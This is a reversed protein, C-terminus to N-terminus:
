AGQVGRQRRIGFWALAMSLLGLAWEGLTPVATPVVQVPVSATASCNGICIGGNAPQITATNVVPSPPNAGATATLTYTLTAGVPLSTITENLAGSGSANPCTGGSASCTWQMASIGAPMPDSLTGSAAVSGTNTVKVTYAVNGGPLVSSSSTTKTISMLAVPPVSASSSCSAVPDGPGCIGGNGPQVSATNVVVAPPTASVTANITYTVSAGAPMTAITDALAGTGAASGCAAGVGAQCTWNVPTIGTVAPDSVQTGNAHVSGTNTVVVTYSISAGPTLATTTTSKAISLVPASPLTVSAKCPPAYTTGASGACTAGSAAPPQVSVENTVTAPVSNAVVAQVTYVVQSGAAFSTLTDNISGTGSATCSAGASATCTWSMSAVGAPQPDSVVTHNVALEGTNRVTVVYEITSGPVAQTATTTKTVQIPTPAALSAMNYAVFAVDSAGSLRQELAVVSGYNTATIGFDRLHFALVRLDRAGNGASQTTNYPRNPVWADYFSWSLQGVPAIGTFNIAISNGVTTGQADVFRYVDSTGPNGTQTAIIDPVDDTIVTLNAVPTNFRLTSVPLNFVASSLELGNTGDHIYQALPTSSGPVVGTAGQPQGGWNRGIGIYTGSVPDGVASPRFAQFVAPTYAVSQATLTADNVGTSYTVGGVTFALLENKDNPLVTSIASSSSQWFGNFNSYVGSVTAAHAPGATLLALSLAVLGPSSASAARQSRPPFAKRSAGTTADMEDTSLVLRRQAAPAASCRWEPTMGVAQLVRSAWCKFSNLAM